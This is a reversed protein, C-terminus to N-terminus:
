LSRALPQALKLFSSYIGGLNNAQCRCVGNLAHYTSLMPSNLKNNDNFLFSQLKTSWVSITGRLKYIKYFKSSDM